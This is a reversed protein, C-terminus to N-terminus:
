DQVVTKPLGQVCVVEQVFLKGLGVADITTHFPIFHRMKSLRNAVVWVADFADCEPLGVVVDM